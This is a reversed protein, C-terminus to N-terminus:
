TEIKPRHLVVILIAILIFTTFLLYLSANFILINKTYFQENNVMFKYMLFMFFSGSYYVLLASNILRVSKENTNVKILVKSREYFFLVALMLIIFLVLVKANTNYTAINEVYLTNLIILSGTIGLYIKFYKKFLIHEKLIEKYFFSLFIFEGLVILHTMPMNNIGLNAMRVASSSM